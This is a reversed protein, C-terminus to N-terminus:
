SVWTLNTKVAMYLDLSFPVYAKNPREAWAKEWEGLDENPPKVYHVAREEGVQNYLYYKFAYDPHAPDWANKVRQIKEVIVNPGAFYFYKM